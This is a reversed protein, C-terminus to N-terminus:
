LRMLGSCIKRPWNLLRMMQIRMTAPTMEPMSPAGPGNGSHEGGAPPNKLGALGGEQYQSVWRSVTEEDGWLIRGVERYSYGQHGLLLAQCRQREHGNVHLDKSRRVAEQYDAESLM